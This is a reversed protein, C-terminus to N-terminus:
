PPSIFYVSVTNVSFRVSDITVDIEVSGPSAQAPVQCIVLQESIFYAASENSANLRCLLQGSQETDWINSGYVYVPYTQNSVSTYFYKPIAQTLVIESYVILRDDALFYILSDFTISVKVFDQNLFTNLPFDFQILSSSVVSANAIM